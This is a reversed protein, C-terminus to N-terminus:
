IINKTSSEILFAVGTEKVRSKPAQPHSLSNTSLPFLALTQPHPMEVWMRACRWDIEDTMAFCEANVCAAIM